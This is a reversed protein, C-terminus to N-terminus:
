LPEIQIVIKAAKMCVKAYKECEAQLVDGLPTALRTVGEPCNGTFNIGGGEKFRIIGQLEIM